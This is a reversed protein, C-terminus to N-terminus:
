LVLQAALLLLWIWFLDMHPIVTSDVEDTLFAEAVCVKNWRLVIKMFNIFHLRGRNCGCFWLLEWVPSNSSIYLLALVLFIKWCPLSHDTLATIHCWQLAAEAHFLCHRACIGSQGPFVIYHCLPCAPTADGGWLGKYGWTKCCLQGRQNTQLLFQKEM